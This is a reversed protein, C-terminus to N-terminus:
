KQSTDSKSLSVYTPMVVEGKSLVVLKDKNMQLLIEKLMNDVFQKDFGTRMLSSIFLTNEFQGTWIREWTKSNFLNAHLNLFISSGNQSNTLVSGGVIQLVLVPAASGGNKAWAIMKNGNIQGLETKQMSEFQVALGNLNFFIPVREALLYGVDNYGISALLPNSQPNRVDQSSALKNELYLVHLETNPGASKDFVNSYRVATGTCGTLFLLLFVITSFYATFRKNM